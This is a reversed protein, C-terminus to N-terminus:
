LSCRRCMNRRKEMMRLSREPIKGAAFLQRLDALGAPWTDRQPSRYTHGYRAEDAEADAYIDPYDTWLNYWEGLTQYPCRACDTRQPITVEREQLFGWIQDLGWGWRRFPFDQVVATNVAAYDGGPRTGEREDEDDRLGIYSVIPAHAAMFEGYPKLKLIRTCFRAFCNPLMKNDAIVSALTGNAVKIIPQGLMAEIRVLHEVM